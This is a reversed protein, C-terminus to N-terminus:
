DNSFHSFIRPFDLERLRTEVLCLVNVMCQLVTSQDKMKVPIVCPIRVGADVEVCVKSFELRERFSTIAYSSPCFRAEVFKAEVEYASSVQALHALPWQRPGKGVLEDGYPIWLKRSLLLIQLLESLNDWFLMGGTLFERMSCRPLPTLQSRIMVFWRLFSILTQEDGRGFLFKRWDVTSM